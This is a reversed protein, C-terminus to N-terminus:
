QAAAAKAHVFGARFLDEQRFLVEEVVSCLTETALNIQQFLLCLFKAHAGCVRCTNRYINRFSTGPWPAELLSLIIIENRALYKPDRQLPFQPLAASALHTCREADSSAKSLDVGIAGLLSRMGGCHQIVQEAGLAAMVQLLMCCYTVAVLILVHINFYSILMGHCTPLCQNGISFGDREVTTEM